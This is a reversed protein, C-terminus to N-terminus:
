KHRHGRRRKTRYRTPNKKAGCSTWNSKLGDLLTGQVGPCRYKEATEAEKVACSKFYHGYSNTWGNSGSAGPWSGPQGTICLYGAWCALQPSEQNMTKDSCMPVDSAGPAKGCGHMAHYIALRAQCVPSNVLNKTDFPGGQFRTYCGYSYTLVLCPCIYLDMVYNLFSVFSEEARM